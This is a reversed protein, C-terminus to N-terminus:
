QQWQKGIRSHHHIVREERLFPTPTTAKRAWRQIAKFLAANPFRELSVKEIEHTDPNQFIQPFSFQLGWYFSDPSFTMECFAHAVESYHLTYPQVQIVPKVIRILVGGPVNIARLDQLDQTIAFTLRFDIHPRKVGKKIEGAYSTYYSLFESKSINEAGEPIVGSLPVFVEPLLLLLEQMEGQTVLLPLTLWKSAQYPKVEDLRARPLM